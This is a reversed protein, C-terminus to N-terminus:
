GPNSSAPEICGPVCTDPCQAGLSEELFGLQLRLAIQWWWPEVLPYPNLSEVNPPVLGRYIKCVQEMLLLRLLRFWVETSLSEVM